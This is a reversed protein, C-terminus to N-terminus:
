TVATSKTHDTRGDSFPSDSVLVFYCFVQFRGVSGSLAGNELGIDILIQGSHGAKSEVLFSWASRPLPRAM